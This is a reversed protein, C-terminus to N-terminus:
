GRPAVDDDLETPDDEGAVAGLLTEALKGVLRPAFRRLLIPLVLASAGSLAQALLGPARHRFFGAERRGGRRRGRGIAAGALAGAAVAVGVSALPHRGVWGRWDSADAIGSRIGAITEQIEARTQDLKRVRQDLTLSRDRAEPM